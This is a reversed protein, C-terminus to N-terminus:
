GCRLYDGEVRLTHISITSGNLVSQAINDGEVRLTHISIDDLLGIYRMTTTVRWVSPTSQFKVQDITLTGIYGDGEM